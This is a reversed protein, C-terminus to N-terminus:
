HGFPGWSGSGNPGVVVAMPTTSGDVTVVVVQDNPALTPQSAQSGSHGGRIATTSDLTFTKTSGDNAALTLSTASAATVKGPTVAITLPNNDKDTLNVQVGKFHAFRDAAPIDQLGTLQPPVQFGPGFGHGAAWPPGGRLGVASLGSALASSVVLGGAVVLVAVLGLSTLAVAIPFRFRTM